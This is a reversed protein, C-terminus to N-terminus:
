YEENILNNWFDGKARWVSYNRNNGFKMASDFFINHNQLEDLFFEYGFPPGFCIKNYFKKTKDLYCIFFGNNNFKNEVHSKLKKNSWWAILLYKNERCIRKIEDPIIDEKNIREDKHYEYYIGVGEEEVLLVQGCYTYVENYRPCCKGSWSLRNNKEQNPTGFIKLFDSRNDICSIKKIRDKPKYIYESASWDGFSIKNASKKMEYGFLDPKNEANPKIDMQKELWHGKKGCHNKNYNSLNIPKNKVQKEFRDIIQEKKTKIVCKKQLALCLESIDKNEKILNTKEM